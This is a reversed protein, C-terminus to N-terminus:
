LSKSRLCLAATSLKAFMPLVSYWCFGFLIAAGTTIGVGVGVSVGTVGVGVGVDVFVGVIVCVDVCVGM